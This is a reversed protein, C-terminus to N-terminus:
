REEEKEIIRNSVWWELVQIANSPEKRLSPALHCETMCTACRGSMSRIQNQITHAKKSEVIKDLTDKRTDGIKMDPTRVSCPYVGGREGIYLPNFRHMSCKWQFPEKNIMHHHYYAEWVNIVGRELARNLYTVLEESYLADEKLYIDAQDENYHLPHSVVRHLSMPIGWQESFRLLWPIKDVNEPFYYANMTIAILDSEIEQLRKITEIVKEYNGEVGRSWDHIRKPGNLSIKVNIPIGRDTIKKAHRFTRRPTLCNTETRIKISPHIENAIIAIDSLDDRVFTEGGSVILRDLGDLFESKLIQEIEDVSIESNRDTNQQWLKCHRCRSNCRATYCIVLSKPWSKFSTKIATYPIGVIAKKPDTLHLADSIQM